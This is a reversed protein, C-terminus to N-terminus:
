GIQKNLVPIKGDVKLCLSHLYVEILSCYCAPHVEIAAIRVNGSSVKEVFGEDLGRNKFSNKPFIRDENNTIQPTKLHGWLREHLNGNTAKGIYLIENSESLLFYVGSKDGIGDGRSTVPLELKNNWDRILRRGAKIIVNIKLDDFDVALNKTILDLRKEIDIFQM